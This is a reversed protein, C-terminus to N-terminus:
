TYAHFFKNVFKFALKEDKFTPPQRSSHKQLHTLNNSQFLLNFLLYYSFSSVSYSDYVVRCDRNRVSEYILKKSFMM